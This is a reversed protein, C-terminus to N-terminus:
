IRPSCRTSTRPMRASPPSSDVRRRSGWGRSCPKAARMRKSPWIAADVAEQMRDSNREVVVFPVRQRSFENAVIRGMRGFGCIIFHRELEDLMHERRRRGWGHQFDGEVIRAMFFSFTYLVTAVGVTLVVM